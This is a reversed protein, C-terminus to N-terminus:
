VEKKFLDNNLNLEDVFQTILEIDKSIETLIEEESIKKFVSGPEFSNKNDYIGIHLRNDIFCFLLKGKNEEDLKEIREMLFPTIIYFADHENQAFVKFKKNFSESEMMVQKFREEKKGFFKKVRSNGFGKQAIQVNAKFIKNFDFIMWRGKFITVYTTTTHGDSDTSEQEEQIHVDSQEFKIDKYRASIYDESHYRNGMNMMETSAITQYPIGENPIYILDTFKKQLAKQVFTSKFIKRYEANLKSTSIVTVLVGIFPIFIIFPIIFNPIILALLIMAVITIAIGMIYRKKIKNKIEELKDM